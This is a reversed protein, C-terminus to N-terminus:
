MGIWKAQDGLSEAFGTKKHSNNERFDWGRRLCLELIEQSAAFETDNKNHPCTLGVSNHCRSIRIFTSVLIMGGNQFNPITM